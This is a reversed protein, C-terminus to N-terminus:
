LKVLLADRASWGVFVDSGEQVVGRDGRNTEVLSVRNTGLEVQYRIHGGLYIVHSLRAKFCNDLSTAGSSLSIAETRLIVEVQEGATFQQTCGDTRIRHGGLDCIVSTGSVEVVTAQLVNSEGLFKAVFPTTPTEYVENPTGVQEIRGENM